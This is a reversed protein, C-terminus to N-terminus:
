CPGVGEWSWEVPLVMMGLTRAAAALPAPDGPVVFFMSGGAGAGAAKGGLAGARSAATALRRMADTEMGPDLAQQCAWNRNLLAAVAALDAATLADAMAFALDKLERLAGSVDSNGERYADMVRAITSGSVRSQGTYCLVTQRALTAAFERDVPLPRVAVSPDQFEFMHFGGCAAAYQDQKGGAVKAVGAEARWGLEALAEPPEHSGVARTLAWALAVDLSGSSGLGSGPPAECDTELSFPPPVPVVELAAHLLRLKDSDGLHELGAAHLEEGLDRSALRVGHGGPTWTARAFLRIAANVVVGGERSSFPAVDTWGGAFDLRVPAKARVATRPATVARGAM